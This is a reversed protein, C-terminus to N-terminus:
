EMFKEVGLCNEIRYFPIIFVNISNVHNKMLMNIDIFVKEEIILLSMDMMKLDRM